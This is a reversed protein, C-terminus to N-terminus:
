SAEIGDGNGDEGEDNAVFHGVFQARDDLILGGRRYGLACPDHVFFVGAQYYRMAEDHPLHVFRQFISPYYADYPGDTHQMIEGDAYYITTNAGERGFIVKEVSAGDIPSRSTELLYPHDPFRTWAEAMLAKSQLLLAYPPNVVVALRRLIIDHLLGLLDPEDDMIWEWPVLKFLFDFRQWQGGALAYIGGSPDFTIRHLPCLHAEFGAAEAALRLLEVNAEDEQLGELYTFLFRPSLDDNLAKIRGFNEVLREWLTNFQATEDLGNAKLHAWQVVSTEPISTPTDANFELLKPGEGTEALDFRGLLHWHREDNWTAEILARMRADRIGLAELRGEAVVAEAAQTLVAYLESAALYLDDVELETKLVVEDSLYNLNGEAFLWEWGVKKLNDRSLPQLKRTRIM